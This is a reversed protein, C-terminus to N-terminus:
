LRMTRALEDASILMVVFAILMFAFGIIALVGVYIAASRLDSLSEGVLRSDNSQMAQKAKSCMSFGKLIPYIYLAIPILYVLLIAVPAHAAIVAVLALIVVLILSILSLMAITRIWKAAGLLHYQANGDFTMPASGYAQQYGQQYPQQYQQQQQYQQYQQQQQQYQQQQQQYQQQQQQYQQQQQQYQQQQQQYQQQQQPNPQYPQGQPEWSGRVTNNKDM